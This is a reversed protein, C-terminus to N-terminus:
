DYIGYLPVTHVFASDTDVKLNIVTTTDFRNSQNIESSFRYSEKNIRRLSVYWQYLPAYAMCQKYAICTTYVAYLRLTYFHM